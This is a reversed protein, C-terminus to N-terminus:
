RHLRETLAVGVCDYIISVDNFVDFSRHYKGVRVCHSIMTNWVSTNQADRPTNQLRRIAGDIDGRGCMKHVENALDYPKLLKVPPNRKDKPPHSPGEVNDSLPPPSFNASDMCIEPEPASPSPFNAPDICIESEPVPHRIQAPRALLHAPPRRPVSKTSRRYIDNYKSEPLPRHFLPPQRRSRAHIASPHGAPVSTVVQSSSFSPKIASLLAKGGQKRLMKQNVAHFRCNALM